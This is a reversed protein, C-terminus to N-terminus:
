VFHCGPAIGQYRGGSATGTGGIIGCIHTGHGCDDSGDQNRGIYNYSYVMRGRLDPHRPDMGSDLVAVGIGAGDYGMGYAKSAGILERVRNM